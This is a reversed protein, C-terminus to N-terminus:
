EQEDLEGLEKLLRYAKTTHDPRNGRFDEGAFEVLLDIAKNYASMEIVPVDEYNGDGDENYLHLM